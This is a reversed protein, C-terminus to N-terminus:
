LSDGSENPSINGCDDDAPNEIPEDTDDLWHDLADQQANLYARLLHLETNSFLPNREIRVPVKLSDRLIYDAGVMLENAIQVITEVSPVRTGREIHGYYSVSINIRGALQRQTLGKEQRRRRIRRGMAEYDIIM